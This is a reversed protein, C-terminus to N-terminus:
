FKGSTVNMKKAAIKWALTFLWSLKKKKTLLIFFIYKKKIYFANRGLCEEDILPFNWAQSNHFKAEVLREDQKQRLMGVPPKM